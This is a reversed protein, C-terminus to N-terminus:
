VASAPQSCCNVARNRVIGLRGILNSGLQQPRPWSFRAMAQMVDEYVDDLSLVDARGAVGERLTTLSGSTFATDRAGEPAISTSTGPSSTLVYTGEVDVQGIVASATDSMARLARGSFCCDLIVIRRPARCRDVVQRVLSYPVSTLDLLDRRTKRTALHLHGDNSLM